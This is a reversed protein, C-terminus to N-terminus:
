PYLPLYFAAQPGTTSKRTGDAKIATSVVDYTTGQVVKGTM